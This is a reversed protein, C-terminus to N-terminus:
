VGAHRACYVSDTTTNVNDSKGALIYDYSTAGSDGIAMKLGQPYEDVANASNVAEYLSRM